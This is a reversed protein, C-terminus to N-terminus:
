GVTSVPSLIYDVDATVIRLGLDFSVGDPIPATAEADLPDTADTPPVVLMAAKMRDVQEVTPTTGEGGTAIIDFPSSSSSSFALSQLVLGTNDSAGRIGGATSDPSLIYDMTVMGPTLSPDLRTAAARDTRRDPDGTTSAVPDEVPCEEFLLTNSPVELMATGAVGRVGPVEIDLYPGPEEDPTPRRVVEKDMATAMAAGAVAREADWLYTFFFWVVM